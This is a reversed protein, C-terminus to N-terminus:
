VERSGPAERRGTPGGQTHQMPAAVGRKQAYLRATRGQHPAKRGRCRVRKWGGTRSVQCSLSVRASSDCTLSILRVVPKQAAWGARGGPSGPQREEGGGGYTGALGGGQGRGAFCARCDNCSFVDVGSTCKPQVQEREGFCVSRGQIPQPACLTDACRAQEYAHLWESPACWAWSACSRTLQLTRM